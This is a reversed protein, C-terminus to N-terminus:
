KFEEWALLRSSRTGEKEDVARKANELGLRNIKEELRKLAHFDIQLIKTDPSGRFEAMFAYESPREDKVTVWGRCSWIIYWSSCEYADGTDLEINAINTEGVSPWRPLKDYYKNWIYESLDKRAKRLREDFNGWDDKWKQCIKEVYKEIEERYETWAGTPSKSKSQGDPFPVNFRHVVNFGALAGEAKLLEVTGSLNHNFLAVINSYDRRLRKMIDDSRSVILASAEDTFPMPGSRKGVRIDKYSDVEGNYSDIVGEDAEYTKIFEEFSPIENELERIEEVLKKNEILPKLNNENVM